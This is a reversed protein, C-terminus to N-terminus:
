TQPFHNICGKIVACRRMAHWDCFGPNLCCDANGEPDMHCAIERLVATMSTGGCKPIHVFHYQMETNPAKRQKPPESMKILTKSDPVSKPISDVAIPPSLVIPPPVYVEEPVTSAVTPNTIAEMQEAHDVHHNDFSVKPTGAGSHTEGHNQVAISFLFTVLSIVVVLAIIPYWASVCSSKSKKAVRAM